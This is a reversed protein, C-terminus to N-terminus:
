QREAGFAATIDTRDLSGSVYEHDDGLFLGHMTGMADKAYITGLTSTEVRPYDAAGGGDWTFNASLRDARFEYDLASTGEVFRRGSTYGVLGGRWSASGGLERPHAGSWVQGFGYIPWALSDNMLWVEYGVDGTDGRLLEYDGNWGDLYNPDYHHVLSLYHHEKVKRSLMARNDMLEDLGYQGSPVHGWLGLAHIMEHIFVEYDTQRTLNIAAPDFAVVTM